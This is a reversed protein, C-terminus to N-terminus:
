TRQKESKKQTKKGGIGHCRIELAPGRIKAAPEGNTIIIGVDGYFFSLPYNKQLSSSFVPFTM